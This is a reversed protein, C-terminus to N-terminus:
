RSGVGMCHVPVVVALDPQKSGSETQGQDDGPILDLVDRPVRHWQRVVRVTFFRKRMDLRFRGEKLQFGNGRTRDCCGRSLLRDGEKKCGGKLYQFAARLDRLAKEEGHQVAGAREAQGQLLPTGDRPDNKHGEEPHAGVPRHREQVSSEM